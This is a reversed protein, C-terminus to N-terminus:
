SSANQKRETWRLCKNLHQTSVSLQKAILKMTIGTLLLQRTQDATKLIKNDPSIEGISIKYDQISHSIYGQSVKVQKSIDVPKTGQLHLKIISNRLKEADEKSTKSTKYDVGMEKLRKILYARNSYGTERVIESINKGEEYLEAIRKMEAETFYYETQRNILGLNIMENKIGYFQPKKINTQKIIEVNSLDCKGREAMLLLLKVKVSKSLGSEIVENETQFDGTWDLDKIKPLTNLKIIDNLTPEIDILNNIRILRINNDKCYKNKIADHKRITKSYFRNSKDVIRHHEGDLEIIVPNDALNPLYFDFPLPNKSRCDDFTKEAEFDINRDYLLKYTFLELSSMSNGIFLQTESLQIFESWNTKFYKYPDSPLKKESNENFLQYFKPYHNSVFIGNDICIKRAEEKTFIEYNRYEIELAEVFYDYSYIQRIREASPFGKPKKAKTYQSISFIKNKLCWKKLEAQFNDNFLRDELTDKYIKLGLVDTFYEDGYNRRITTVTPFEKPRGKFALYEAQSKINNTSCWKKLKKIFDADTIKDIQRPKTVSRKFSFFEDFTKGTKDRCIEDIAYYSPIKLKKDKKALLLKHQSDVELEKFVDRLKELTVSGNELQKNTTKFYLPRLTVKMTTRNDISAALTKLAQSSPAKSATET